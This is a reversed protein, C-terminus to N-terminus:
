WHKKVIARSKLVRLEKVFGARFVESLMTVDFLFDGNAKSTKWTGNKTIGGAPIVFHVHPHLKLQQDWTHLMALAGLQAGLWKPDKSFTQLTQWAHKFLLNYMSTQHFRFLELLDHPVTFVVHFYKVPLLEQKRDDLWLERDIGQCQPCHRNRCSHLVYHVTGCDTCAVVSGGLSETRCKALANLVKFQQQSLGTTERLDPLFRTVVQGLANNHMVQKTSEQYHVLVM